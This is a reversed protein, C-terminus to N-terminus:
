RPKQQMIKVLTTPAEEYAEAIRQLTEVAGQARYLPVGEAKVCTQMEKETYGKLWELVHGFDTSARLNSFAQAAKGDLKM